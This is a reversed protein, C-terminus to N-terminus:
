SNVFLNPGKTEKLPLLFTVRFPNAGKKPHVKHKLSLGSRQSSERVCAAFRDLWDRVKATTIEDAEPLGLGM